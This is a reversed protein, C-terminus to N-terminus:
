YGLTRKSDHPGPALRATNEWDLQCYALQGLVLAQNSSILALTIRTM